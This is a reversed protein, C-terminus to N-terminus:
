KIQNIQKNYLKWVLSKLNLSQHEFGMLNWSHSISLSSSYIDEDIKIAAKLSLLIFGVKIKLSDIQNPIIHPSISGNNRFPKGVFQFYLIIYFSGKRSTQEIIAWWFSKKYIPFFIFHNQKVSKIIIDDFGDEM